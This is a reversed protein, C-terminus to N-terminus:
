VFVAALRRLLGLRWGFHGECRVVLAHLDTPAHGARQLQESLPGLRRVHRVLEAWCRFISYAPDYIHGPESSVGNLEIVTFRGARLAEESEARVDVRGYHIGQTSSLLREMAASLAPGKLYCADFFVTGRCHNGIPEVTVREGPAPVYHLPVRSSRRLRDVQRSGRCSRLLLMEVTSVGDGVVGLFRKGCVSLLETRGSETDKMFMLGFEHEGQAMAQLLMDQQAGVLAHVLSVEDEVRAVGQGREGVDPKVILPFDIGSACKLSRVQEATSGAPVLVTAPYSEMPLQAYIARKSEGFFGGLDIAPNVNTFFVARRQRLAQYLYLPVVPLYILQWPWYEHNLRDAVRQWM